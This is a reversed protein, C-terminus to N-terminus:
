SIDVMRISGMSTGSQFAIWGGSSSVRMVNGTIDPLDIFVVDGSGDAAVSWLGSRGDDLNVGVLIRTGEAAWALPPRLRGGPDSLVTRPGGGVVKVAEISAIGDADPRTMYALESGDPSVSLTVPDLSAEAVLRREATEIDIAVVRSEPQAIVLYFESGDPSVEVIHFLGQAGYDPLKSVRGGDPDFRHLASVGKLVGDVVFTGDPLWSVKGTKNHFGHPFRIRRESEGSPTVFVAFEDPEPLPEFTVYMLRSGDPSWDGVANRHWPINDVPRPAELVDGSLVDVSALYTNWTGDPAGYVFGDRTWGLAEAGRIGSVVLAPEGTRHGDVVPLKWLSPSGSRDSYYLLEDGDPSWAALRDEGPGDVLVHEGSGDAALLYIDRGNAAVSSPYDYAIWRGDPSWDAHPYAQAHGGGPAEWGLTKLIEISGDTTSIIGLEWDDDVRQLAVVVHGDSPSWDLPEVYSRDSTAPVLLRSPSGDLSEIRLEHTGTEYKYWAVAINRGDSSFASSWAYRNAEYGQGTLPVSQGLKLDVLDLDGSSWHIDTFFRGDPSLDGTYFDPGEGRWVPTGPHPSLDSVHDAPSCGAIMLAVLSSLRPASTPHRGM